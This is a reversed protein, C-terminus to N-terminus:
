CPISARVFGGIGHLPRGLASPATTPAVSTATSLGQKTAITTAMGAATDFLISKKSWICRTPMMGSQM